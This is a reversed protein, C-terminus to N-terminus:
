ATERALLTTLLVDARRLSGDHLHHAQHKRTPM